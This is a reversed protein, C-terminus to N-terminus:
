RWAGQQFKRHWFQKNQKSEVKFAKSLCMSKSIYYIEKHIEEMYEVDTEGFHYGITQWLREAFYDEGLLKMFNHETDEVKTVLVPEVKKVSSTKCVM